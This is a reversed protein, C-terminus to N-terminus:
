SGDWLPMVPNIGHHYKKHDSQNRFVMLNSPKNNNCDGDIHHVVHSQQLSFYDKVIKRALIQGYRNQIYDPNHMSKYYCKDSCYHKAQKRWKSRTARYQQGCNDCTCDVWEGADTPIRSNRLIKAIYQRSVGHIDGIEQCTLHNITYLSVVYQPNVRSKRM